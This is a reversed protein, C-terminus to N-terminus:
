FTQMMAYMPMLLKLYMGIIAIGIAIFCVPQISVVLSNIKLVLENFLAQSLLQCRRALEDRSSGAALLLRLRNPLLEEQDIIEQVTAGSKVQKAIQQGLFYQLSDPAQEAALQCIQQLSFGNGILLTLDFTLLYQVYLKVAPGVFPYAGLKKLAAFNQRKFLQRVRVIVLGLCLVLLVVGAVLATGPLSDDSFEQRLITQMFVLLFVMMGALVAPYALEARIKRLQKDKLKLLTVLQALCTALRGQVFALNIQAAITGSFGAEKLVQGLTTGAALSASMEALLQSKEPWIGPLIALGQNISFGNALAQSLYDLFKIQESATFSAGSSNKLLKRV